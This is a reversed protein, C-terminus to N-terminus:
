QNVEAKGRNAGPDSILAEVLEPHARMDFVMRETVGSVSFLFEHPRNDRKQTAFEESTVAERRARPRSLSAVMDVYGDTTPANSLTLADRAAPASTTRGTLTVGVLPALAEVDFHSTNQSAFIARLNHKRSDVSSKDMLDLGADFSLLHAEDIFLGKREDPDGMYIRRQTLWAGLRFLALAEREESSEANGGDKPVRLGNMKYVTLRVDKPEGEPETYEGFILRGRGSKAFEGLEDAVNRAAIRYEPTLDPDSKGDAMARLHDIVESASATPTAPVRRVARGLVAPAQDQSILYGPLLSQLSDRCLAQRTSRAKECADKWENESEYHKRQPEAVVRYPGLIGPTGSMLDVEQSHPELEPIRCLTGLRGSPDFVDWRAGLMASLGVIAGCAFTKGSGLGGTVIMLGTQHHQEMALWPHWILPRRSTGATSGLALGFPDGISATVAPLAAIVSAVPFRRRSARSALLEGPIFENVLAAQGHSWWWDVKRGYLSQVASVREKLEDENRGWVAIRYWGDTRTAQGEAGQSLEEETNLALGNQRQLARPAPLKHEDVYHRYQDTIKNIQKRLQAGVREDPLIETTGMWEVPFPLRDTRQIWGGKGDQPVELEATRGMTLVAVLRSIRDGGPTNGTVTVWKQWPEATIEVESTISPLDDADVDGTYRDTRPAPLGLGVSRRLLLDMDDATAPRGDLGDHQVIKTVKEIRDRLDAVERRPDMPHSRGKKVRVGIFAYKESLDANALHQQTRVLMRDAGPLPQSAYTADEWTRRAMTAVAYPRATVRWFVTHGVLNSLASGGALIEQEVDRDLRCSNSRPELLYWAVVDGTSVAVHGIVARLRGTHKVTTATGTTTTM